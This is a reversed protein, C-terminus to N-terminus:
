SLLFFFIKLVYATETSPMSRAVVLDNLVASFPLLFSRMGGGVEVGERSHFTKVV